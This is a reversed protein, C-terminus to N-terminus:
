LLISCFQLFGTIIKQLHEKSFVSGCPNSPNTVILCSTREDILSELHQLDVEWSKEPQVDFIHTLVLVSVNKHMILYMYGSSTWPYTSNCVHLTPSHIVSFYFNHNRCCGPKNAKKDKTSRENCIVKSSQTEHEMDPETKMRNLSQSKIQKINVSNISHM